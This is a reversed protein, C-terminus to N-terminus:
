SAALSFIEAEINAGDLFQKAVFVHLGRYDIGM